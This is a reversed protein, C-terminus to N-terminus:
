AGHVKYLSCIEDDTLNNYNRGFWKNALQQRAIDGDVFKTPLTEWWQLARQMVAPITCQDTDKKNNEKM